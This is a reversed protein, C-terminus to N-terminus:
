SYQSWKMVINNLNDWGASITKLTQSWDGIKINAPVDDKYPKPGYCYVAAKGGTWSKMDGCMVLGNPGPSGCGPVGSQVMPYRALQDDATWGCGCVQSGAAQAEILQASTALVAGVKACIAQADNYAVNYGGGGNSVQFVENNAKLVKAGYCDNLAMKREENSLSTNNATEFASKYLAKVGDKGNRLAEAKARTLGEPNSPNLAGEPRCVLAKQFDKSDLSQKQQASGYTAPDTYLFRLCETTIPGTGGKTECPNSITKGTMFMSANNWDPISMSIGNNLGTAAQVALSGLYDIIQGLSRPNGNTDFLLNRKNSESPYGTGKATGGMGRFIKKLCALPYNGPSNESNYCDGDANLSEMSAKQTVFPGNSCNNADPSPPKTFTFPVMGRLNIDDQGEQQIFIFYSSVTGNQLVELGHDKSMFATIDVQYNPNSVTSAKIFGALMANSKNNNRCIIEMTDGEYITLPNSVYITLRTGDSIQATGYTPKVTKGESVLADWTEGGKPRTIHIALTQNANSYLTVTVPNVATNPITAHYSSDTFCLSCRAESNGYGINGPICKIEGQQRFCSKKDAAFVKSTGLTPTYTNYDMGNIINKKLKQSERSMSDLYLGGTHPTGDSNTGIDLAMGCNAAFEPNDFANCDTIEKSSTIKECVTQAIAVGQPQKSPIQLPRTTGPVLSSDYDASITAKVFNQSTTPSLTLQPKIPNIINSAPNYYPQNAQIFPTLPSDVYQELIGNRSLYLIVCTAVLLGIIPVLQNM